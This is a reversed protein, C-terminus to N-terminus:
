GCYGLHFSTFFAIRLTHEPQEPMRSAVELTTSGIRGLPMGLGYSSLREELSGFGWYIPIVAVGRLRIYHGPTVSIDGYTMHACKALQTLDIKSALQADALRPQGQACLAVVQEFSFLKKDPLVMRTGIRFFIVFCNAPQAQSRM